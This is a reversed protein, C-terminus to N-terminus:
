KKEKTNSESFERDLGLAQERLNELMRSGAWSLASVTTLAESLSFETKEKGDETVDMSLIAEHTVMDIDMTITIVRQKKM